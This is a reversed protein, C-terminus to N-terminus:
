ILGMLVPTAWGMYMLHSHAHQVNGLSFLGLGGYIQKFRFIAGTAGALCFLALGGWWIWRGRRSAPRKFGSLLPSADM